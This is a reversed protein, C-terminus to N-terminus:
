REQGTLRARSITLISAIIWNFYAASAVLVGGIGSTRWYDVFYHVGESITAIAVAVCVALGAALSVVGTHVSPTRGVVGLWAFYAVPALAFCGFGGSTWGHGAGALTIGAFLMFLVVSVAVGYRM